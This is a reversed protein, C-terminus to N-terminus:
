QNQITLGLDSVPQVRRLVYLKVCDWQIATAISLPLESVEM